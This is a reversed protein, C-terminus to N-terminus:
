SDNIAEKQIHDNTAAVLVSLVKNRFDLSVNENICEKLLNELDYIRAKLKDIEEFKKELEEIRRVANYPVSAEKVTHGTSYQMAGEGTLLWNINCGLEVLKSLMEGGPFSRGKLYPNLGQRNNMGISRSFSAISPFKNEGFEKIRLGIELKKDLTFFNKRM